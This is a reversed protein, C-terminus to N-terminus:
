RTPRVRLEVDGAAAATWGHHEVTLLDGPRLREGGDRRVEAALSYERTRDVRATLRFPIRRVAAGTCPVRATAVTRSPADALATERLRVVTVAGDLAVPPDILVTGAIM